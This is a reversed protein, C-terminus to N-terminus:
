DGLAVRPVCNENTGWRMSGGNHGKGVQEWQGGMDNTGWRLGPYVTRMPGGHWQDGLTVRPVCNENTGWRMSGGNHGKGVQEWQDGMDNTGWRLGPYVTRMPRGHWQDGLTVRPVCNENTEWTMPGGVCGLTCLEWQDGMDNTGWRLGPYVTRMPRGHWQDGLTVRPVCNENTEWTVPGGVCGQTCLEWQNGMDNTGWRLGPYVTRMPRGHWQDGLTVRTVCSENTGWRVPGGVSGQTCWEWQDGM